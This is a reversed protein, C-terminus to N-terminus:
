NGFFLCSGSSIKFNLVACCLDVLCALCNVQDYYAQVRECWLEWYHLLNTENLVFRAAPYGDGYSYM